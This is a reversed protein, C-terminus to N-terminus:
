FRRFQMCGKMTRLRLTRRREQASIVKKIRFFLHFLINTLDALVSISHVDTHTDKIGELPALYIKM